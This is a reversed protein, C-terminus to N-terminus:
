KAVKAKRAKRLTVEGSKRRDIHVALDSLFVKLSPSHDITSLVQSNGMAKVQSNGMAEVQSNGMARAKAGSPVSGKQNGTFVFVTEWEVLKILRAGRFAIKDIGHSVQDGRGEAEYCVARDKWWLAPHETLHYGRACPEVVGVIDPMWEGPGDETPLNWSGKGGHCSSGNLLVKYLTM